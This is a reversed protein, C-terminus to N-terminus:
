IQDNEYHPLDQANSTRFSLPRKGPIFADIIQLSKEVMILHVLFYNITKRQLHRALIHPFNKDQYQLMDHLNGTWQGIHFVIIGKSFGRTITM